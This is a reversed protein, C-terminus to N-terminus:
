CYCMGEMGMSGTNWYSYNSLRFSFIHQFYKWTSL